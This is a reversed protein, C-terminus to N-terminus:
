RTDVLQRVRDLAAQVEDVAEALKGPQAGAVYDALLQRIVASRDTGAAEAAAGAANWLEDDVRVNRLNTAPAM